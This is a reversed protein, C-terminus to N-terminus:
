VFRERIESSVFDLAAVTITILWVAIGAPEYQFQRIWQILIFGIGGGGVLGIITSLRVNIDWRYITFSIFPPLVQPVVAYMITQLRTAGTAQLAEIPGPDISEISESYLKGLAAITHLTLAITGAFPGPGIWIIGVLAWILPEISRTINMATRVIAYITTGVAVEGQAGRRFAVWLVWAGLLVMGALAYRQEGVAAVESGVPIAVVGRSFGLGILYGASAGLAGVAIAIVTRSVIDPALRTISRMLRSGARWALYGLGVVLVLLLGATQLPGEELGGFVVSIRNTGLFALWIAPVLLVLGGVLGSLSTVIPAMLNRAALFSFPVALIIGFFTAMLGLMITELMGILALNMERSLSGTFVEGSEQRILLTHIQDGVATSPIIAEPINLKTEFGGDPGIAIITEGVGRPRFPNGIPNKWWIEVEAGPLFGGGTISLETGLTLAGTALARESLDGCTPTVVVWAEGSLPENITPGTAGPPCPAQIKAESEVAIVEFEFASRWPWVIRRLIVRTDQYERVAKPLDIETINWGLVFILLCAFLIGPGLGPLPLRGGARAGDAVQWFWIAALAGAALVGTFGYVQRLDDEPGAMALVLDAVLVILVLYLVALGYQLFDAGAARLAYRRLLYGIAVLFVLLAALQVLILLFVRASLFFDPFRARQAITWISLGALALIAILMAIGRAWYGAVAQGLGPVILSLLGHLLSIRGPKPPEISSRQTDVPQNAM